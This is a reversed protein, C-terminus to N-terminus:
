CYLPNSRWQNNDNYVFNPYVANGTRCMPQEALLDVLRTSVLSMTVYAKLCLTAKTSYHLHLVDGIAQHLDKNTWLM